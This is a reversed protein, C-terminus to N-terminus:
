SSPLRMQLGLVEVYLQMCCCVDTFGPSPLCLALDWFGPSLSTLSFQHTRAETLFGTESFYPSTHNLFICMMTEPWWVCIYLDACVHLCMHLQRTAWRQSQDKVKFLTLIVEETHSQVLLQFVKKITNQAAKETARDIHYYILKIIESVQFLPIPAKEPSCCWCFLLWLDSFHTAAFLITDLTLVLDM